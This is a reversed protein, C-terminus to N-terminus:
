MWNMLDLVLYPQDEEVPFESLQNNNNNNHENSSFREFSTSEAAAMMFRNNNMMILRNHHDDVEDQSFYDSQNEEFVQSQSSSQYILVSHPSDSDVLDSKAPPPVIAAPVRFPAKEREETLKEKLSNVQNRLTEKEHLLSSYESKLRDFDSKLSDFDKELQKNKFRARRNQFWIAVQRPQLGIENALQIKREPELKNETKFSRELFQVQSATLRRKKCRPSSGMEFDEDCCLEEKVMPHFFTGDNDYDAIQRAAAAGYLHTTSISPLWLSEYPLHHDFGGGGSGGSLTDSAM